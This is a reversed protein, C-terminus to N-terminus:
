FGGHGSPNFKDPAWTFRPMPPTVTPSLSGGAQKSRGVTTEAASAIKSKALADFHEKARMYQMWYRGKGDEALFESRRESALEIAVWAVQAKFTEDTAAMQNIQDITWAKLMRTAAFDEAEVLITNVTVSNRIGSGDDCFLEDIKAAGTRADLDASTMYKPTRLSASALVEFFGPEVADVDGTGTWIYVFTGAVDPVYEFRYAGAGDRIVEADTGYVYTLTAGGPVKLTFSVTTPDLLEGSDSFETIIRVTTGVYQAQM